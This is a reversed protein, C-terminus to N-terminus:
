PGRGDAGVESAWRPGLLEEPRTRHGEPLLRHSRGAPGQSETNPGPQQPGRRSKPDLEIAKRLCAVAEDLQGNVMLAAGLRAHAIALEPDLEIAKKYCAIAEDFQGKFHLARGQNCHAAALKPDLEIAKEYCAIAEDM